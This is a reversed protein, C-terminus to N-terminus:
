GQGEEDSEVLEYVHALVDVELCRREHQLRPPARDIATCAGQGCTRRGCGRTQAAACGPPGTCTRRAAWGPGRGRGSGGIHGDLEGHEILGPHALLDDVAAGPHLPGRSRRHIWTLAAHTPTRSGVVTCDKRKRKQRRTAPRHIHQALASSRGPALGVQRGKDQAQDAPKPRSSQCPPEPARPRARPGVPARLWPTLMVTRLLSFRCPYLAPASLSASSSSSCQHPEIRRLRRTLM